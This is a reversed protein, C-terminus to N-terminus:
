TQRMLLGILAMRVYVGGAVQEVIITRKDEMVDDTLESGRVVPGPHMIVANPRLMELRTSNLQYGAIFDKPRILAVGGHRELQTRLMMIVDIEGLIDDLDHQTEAQLSEADSSNADQIFGDPMLEKPAVLLPTIGFRNLLRVNSRAVRSHLIDGCIAVRLNDRLLSRKWLAYADLLAQTPHAFKGSGGNIVPAPFHAAFEKVAGDDPHRMAALDFGLAGCTQATDEISEGKAVSLGEATAICTEMGFTKAAVEFSLRTRTSPEYFLLLCHKGELNGRLSLREQSGMREFNQAGQFISQLEDDTLDTVTIVDRKM